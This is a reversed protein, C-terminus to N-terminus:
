NGLYFSGLSAGALSIDVYTSPRVAVLVARGPPFQNISLIAAQLHGVLGETVIYGGVLEATGPVYLEGCTSPTSHWGKAAPAAGPTLVPLYFDSRQPARVAIDTM